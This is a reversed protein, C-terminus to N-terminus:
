ESLLGHDKLRSAAVHLQMMSFGTKESIDLLSTDGDSYFMVWRMADLESGSMIMDAAAVLRKGCTRNELNAAKQKIHGGIKPYLDRKGFMPECFPNVSKYSVNMELNGIVSLYLQLCEVLYKSDVFDLDDLSTHYFDYEYYKDKCITGIPIRFFPSSYQREDSGNIDFPYAIYSKNQEKFTRDVVRDVLHNGLYSYKYGFEGPGACTTLIFGGNILKMANENQSLYAIAGITEPVIIFVYSHRTKRLSLERYLLAWLILGSLNDNAPLTVAIPQFFTNRM